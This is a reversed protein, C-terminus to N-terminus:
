LKKENCKYNHKIKLKKLKTINKIDETKNWLLDKNKNIRGKSPM